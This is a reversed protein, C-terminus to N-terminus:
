LRTTIAEVVWIHRTGSQKYLVGGGQRGILHNELVDVEM